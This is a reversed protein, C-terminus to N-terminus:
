APCQAQLAEFGEEIMRVDTFGAARLAESATAAPEPDEFAAFVYLPMDAQDPLLGALAEPLKGDTLPGCNTADPRSERQGAPRADLLLAQKAQVTERMARLHPKVSGPRANGEDDFNFFLMETEEDSMEEEDNDDDDGRDSLKLIKVSVMKIVPRPRRSAAHLVGVTPHMGLPQLPLSAVFLIM